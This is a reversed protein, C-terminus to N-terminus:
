AALGLQRVALGDFDMCSCGEATCPEWGVMESPAWLPQLPFSHEARVHGCDCRRVLRELDGQALLDLVEQPVGPHSRIPIPEQAYGAFREVTTEDRCVLTLDDHRKAGNSDDAQRGQPGVFPKAAMGRVAALLDDKRDGGEVLSRENLRALVAKQRAPGFTTRKNKGLKDVWCDFVEQADQMLPSAGREKSLEAKLRAIQRNKALVDAQLNELDIQMATLAAAMDAQAFDSM